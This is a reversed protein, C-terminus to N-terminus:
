SSSHPKETKGRKMTGLKKGENKKKKKKKKKKKELREVRSNVTSHHSDRENKRKQYKLNKSPLIYTTPSVEANNKTKDKQQRVQLTFKSLL